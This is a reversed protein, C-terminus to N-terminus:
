PRTDRLGGSLAFQASLPQTGADSLPAIWEGRENVIFTLVDPSFSLYHKILREAAVDYGALLTPSGASDRQVAVIPMGVRPAASRFLATGMIYESPQPRCARAIRSDPARTRIFM